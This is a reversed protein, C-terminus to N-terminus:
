AKLLPNLTKIFGYHKFDAINETYIVGVANEKATVALICDFVESKSLKLRKAHEFVELPVVSSPSIKEIENCQWFDICIDAAENPLMPYQVRKANTVVAFFEFLVQATLCAEIEGRM